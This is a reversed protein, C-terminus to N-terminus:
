FKPAIAFVHKESKALSSSSSYVFRDNRVRRVINSYWIFVNKIM